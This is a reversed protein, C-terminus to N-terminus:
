GYSSRGKLEDNKARAIELLRARALGYDMWTEKLGDLDGKSAATGGPLRM